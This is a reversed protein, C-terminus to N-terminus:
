QQIAILDTVFDLKGDHTSKYNLKYCFTCFQELDCGQVINGEQAFSFGARGCVFHPFRTLNQTLSLQL